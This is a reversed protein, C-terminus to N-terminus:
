DLVKLSKLYEILADMDEQPMDSFAPMNNGPKWEQPDRIFNELNEDTAEMYGAYVTREGFNTLNPGFNGGENGIAHCSLCNAEFIARGEVAYETIEGEEYPVEAMNAAWTEFTDPDVAIVKFDMQWHAPGCLEACKGLYVGENPAELWMTNTIGPVNDQKGALAPVWFAHIVDSSELEINIRTNTPIYMEQGAIIDHDPYEFEWWFLHAHARITIAGESDDIEALEFTAMVNPIALILLLIIPITTWIVELAKNGHVQKPIHTDGPRERFKFLVILYLAFVVVIVFIMIYLSLRILSFQMDAVPGQPDLASLNQQGCGVILLIFTFPLLRWLYKM